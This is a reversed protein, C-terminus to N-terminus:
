EDLVVKVVRDLYVELPAGIRDRRAYIGIKFYPRTRVTGGVAEFKLAGDSYVRIYGDNARSFRGQMEIRHWAGYDESSLLPTQQRIKAGLKRLGSGVAVRYGSTKAAGLLIMPKAGDHHFQGIYVKNTAGFQKPILIDFSISVKKGRPLFESRVEARNYNGRRIDARCHGADDHDLYFRSVRRGDLEITAYNRDMGSRDPFGCSVTLPLSESILVPDGSEGINRECATLLLSLFAGGILSGRM